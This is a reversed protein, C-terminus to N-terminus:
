FGVMKKIYSIKALINVIGNQPIIRKSLINLLTSKGSAYDGSITITKQEEIELNIHNLIVKEDARFCVDKLVISPAIEKEEKKGKEYLTSESIFNLLYNLSNMCIRTSELSM